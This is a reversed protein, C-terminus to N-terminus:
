TGPNAKRGLDGLQTVKDWQDLGMEKQCEM